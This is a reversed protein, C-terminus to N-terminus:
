DDERDVLDESDFYEITDLMAKTEADVNARVFGNLAYDIANVIAGANRMDCLRGHEQYHHAVDLLM